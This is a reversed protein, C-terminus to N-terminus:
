GGRVGVPFCLGREQGKFSPSFDSALPSFTSLRPGRWGPGGPVWTCPHAARSTLRALTQRPYLERITRAGRCGHLGGPHGAQAGSTGM